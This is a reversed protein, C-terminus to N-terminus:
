KLITGILFYFHIVGARQRRSEDKRDISGPHPFWPPGQACTPGLIHRSCNSFTCFVLFERALSQLKQAKAKGYPHDWLSSPPPPVDSATADRPWRPLSRGSFPSSILLAGDGGSCLQTQRLYVDYLLTTVLSPSPDRAQLTTPLRSPPSKLAMQYYARFSPPTILLQMVRLLWLFSSAKPAWEEQRTTSLMQPPELWPSRTSTSSSKMLNQKKVVSNGVCQLEKQSGCYPHARPAVWSNHLLLYHLQGATSLGGVVEQLPAIPHALTPM